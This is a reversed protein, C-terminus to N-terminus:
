QGLLTKKGEAGAGLGLPSTLIGQAQRGRMGALRRARMIQDFISYDARQRNINAMYEALERNQAEQQAQLDGARHQQTRIYSHLGLSGIEALDQVSRDIQNETHEWIEEFPQFPNFGRHRRTAVLPQNEPIGSALLKQGYTRFIKLHSETLQLPTTIIKKAM